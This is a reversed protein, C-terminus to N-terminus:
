AVRLGRGGEPPLDRGHRLVDARDRVDLEEVPGERHGGARVRLGLAEAGGVGPDLRFCRMESNELLSM